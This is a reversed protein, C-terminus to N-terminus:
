EEFRTRLNRDLRGVTRENLELRNERAQKRWDGLNINFEFGSKAIKAQRNFERASKLVEESMEKDNQLEARLFANRYHDRISKKQSKAESIIQQNFQENLLSPTQFGLVMMTNDFWDTNKNIGTGNLNVSYGYAMQEGGKIVNRIAGPAVQKIGSTIDGSILSGAGKLTNVFLSLTPGGIETVSQASGEGSAIDLMGGLGPIVNGVQARIGASPFIGNRAYTEFNDIGIQKGIDQFFETTSRKVSKDSNFLKLLFDITDELDQSFPLGMLGGTIALSGIFQGKAKTDMHKFMEFMFVKYQQFMFLTEAVPGKMIKPRNYGSYDGNVRIINNTAFEDFTGTIKRRANYKDQNNYIEYSSILMSLRNLQESKGFGWFMANKITSLYNPSGFQEQNKVNFLMQNKNAGILDPNFGKIINDLNKDGTTGTRLYTYAKGLNKIAMTVGLNGTYMSLWSPAAQMFQVTQMLASSINGGLFWLSGWGRLKSTLEDGTAKPERKANQMHIAIERIPAKGDGRTENMINIEKNYFMNRSLNNNLRDSISFTAKDFNLSYGIGGKFSRDLIDFTKMTSLIQKKQENSLTVGNRESQNIFDSANMNSAVDQIRDEAVISFLNPDPIIGKEHLSNIMKDIAQKYAYREISSESAFVGFTMFKENGNEDIYKMKMNVTYKGSHDKPVYGNNKAVNQSELMDKLNQKLENFEIFKNEFEPNINFINENSNALENMQTIIPEANGDNVFNNISKRLNAIVTNDTGPVSEITREIRNILDIGNSITNKDIINDFNRRRLNYLDYALQKNNITKGNIDKFSAIKERVEADSLRRGNGDNERLGAQEIIRNVAQNDSDSIKKTINNLERIYQDDFKKLLGYQRDQMDFVNQLAQTLDYKSAMERVSTLAKSITNMTKIKNESYLRNIKEKQGPYKKLLEQKLKRNEEKSYKLYNVRDNISGAAKEFFNNRDKSNRLDLQAQTELSIDKIIKEINELQEKNVEKYQKNEDPTYESFMVDPSMNGTDNMYTNAEVLSTRNIVDAQADNLGFEVTNSIYDLVQENTIKENGKLDLVKNILDRMYNMFREIGNLKTFDGSEAYRALAEEISRYKDYGFENALQNALQNLDNNKSLLDLEQQYRRRDIGKVLNYISGHLLEHNILAKVQDMSKISDAILTIQNNSPDYYGEAIKERTNNVDVDKRNVIRLNISSNRLLNDAYKQVNNILDNRSKLVDSKESFMIDSDQLKNIGDLEGNNIKEAINDLNKRNNRFVDEVLSPNRQYAENISSNNNVKKIFLGNTIGNNEQQTERSIKFSNDKVFNNKNVDNEKIVEPNKLVDKFDDITKGKLKQNEFKNQIENGLDKSQKRREKLSLDERGNFYTKIQNKVSNIDNQTYSSLDSELLTNISSNRLIPNDSNLGLEALSTNRVIDKSDDIQGQIINQVKSVENKIGMNQEDAMLNNVEEPTNAQIPESNELANINNQENSIKEVQSSPEVTNKITTTNTDPNTVQKENEVLLTGTDTTNNSRSSESQEYPITNNSESVNTNDVVNNTITSTNDTNNEQIVQNNNKNRKGGRFLSPVAFPAGGIAGVAASNLYSSLAEQDTLSQNTFGRQNIEGLVNSGANIGGTVGLNTLFRTAFNRGTLPNLVNNVLAGDGILNLGGGIAGGILANQIPNQVNREVAEPYIDGTSQGAGFAFLGAGFGRTTAKSVQEKVANDLLNTLGRKALQRGALAGIGGTALSLALGPVQQGLANGAFSGFDSLSNVGSLQDTNKSYAQSIARERNYTDLGSKLLNQNGISDGILAGLGGIEGRLQSLGQSLGRSFSSANPDVNISTIEGADIKKQLEDNRIVSGDNLTTYQSMDPLKADFDIAM